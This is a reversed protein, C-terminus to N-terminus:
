TWLNLTRGLAECRQAATAHYWYLAAPCDEEGDPIQEAIRSLWENFQYAQREDLKKELEHVANLDHFYNPLNCAQTMSGDPREWEALKIRKEQETM